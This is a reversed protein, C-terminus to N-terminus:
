RGEKLTVKCISLLFKHEEPKDEWVPPANMFVLNDFESKDLRLETFEYIM